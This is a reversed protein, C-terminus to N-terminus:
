QRPVKNVKFWFDLDHHRPFINVVASANTLVGIFFLTSYPWIVTSESAKWGSLSAMVVANEKKFFESTPILQNPTYCPM